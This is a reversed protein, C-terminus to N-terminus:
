IVFIIIAALNCIPSTTEYYFNSVLNISLTNILISYLVDFTSCRFGKM